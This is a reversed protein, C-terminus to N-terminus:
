DALEYGTSRGGGPSKKLVGFELLPTIDRLATDPSCKAIAAGKSSTLKEEFGDLLRNLLKVQRENLPMGARRQRFRAKLLVADLTIQASAVARGPTGLFWSLWGTVDLTGKRTRELVEYYDKRERRIQASLSYFRQPSGDARAQFVGMTKCARAANGLEQALNLLGPKHEVVPQNVFNM